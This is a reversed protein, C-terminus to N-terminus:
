LEELTQLENNEEWSAKDRRRQKGKFSEPAQIKYDIAMYSYGGEFDLRYADDEVMEERAALMKIYREGKGALRGLGVSNHADQELDGSERYSTADIVEEGKENRSVSRNFQAGSIVILNNEAAATVVRDSITKVRMYTDSVIDQPSPMRQIYDLLVVDGPEACTKMDAIIEPFSVGRGDYVILTNRYADQILEKAQNTYAIFEPTGSYAVLKRGKLLDYCDKQPTRGIQKKREYSGLYRLLEHDGNERALYFATSLMLKILLQKRNMELSIFFVRRPNDDFLAERALNIMATTKGVKARAGIYSVTGMPCPLRAFLSPRFDKEPEYTLCDHTFGVWTGLRKEIDSAGNTTKLAAARYALDSEAELLKPDKLSVREDDLSNLMYETQEKLEKLSQKKREREERAKGRGTEREIFALEDGKIGREHCYDMIYDAIKSWAGASLRQNVADVIAQPTDRPADLFQTILKDRETM